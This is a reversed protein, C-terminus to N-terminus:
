MYSESEKSDVSRNLFDLIEMESNYVYLLSIAGFLMGRALRGCVSIM